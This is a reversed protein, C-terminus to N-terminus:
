DLSQISLYLGLLENLAYNEEPNNGFITMLRRPVRIESRSLCDIEMTPVENVSIIYEQDQKRFSAVPNNSNIKFLTGDKKITGFPKSNIFVDSHDSKILFLYTQAVTSVGIIGSKHSADFYIRRFAVFPEHYISTLIGENKRVEVFINRKTELLKDSLLSLEEKEFKVLKPIQTKLYNEVSDVGSKYRASQPQFSFYTKSYITFGIYILFGLIILPM